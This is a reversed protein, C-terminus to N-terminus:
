KTVTPPAGFLTSYFGISRYLNEVAVHMHLRKM